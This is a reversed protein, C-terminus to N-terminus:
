SRTRTANRKVGKKWLGCGISLYLDSGGTAEDTALQQKTLYHEGSAVKAQM